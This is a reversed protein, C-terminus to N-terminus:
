KTRFLIKCTNKFLPWHWEDYNNNHKLEEIQTIRDLDELTLNNGFM